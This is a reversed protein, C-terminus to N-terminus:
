SGEVGVAAEVRRLLVRGERRLTARDRQAAEGLERLNRAERCATLLSAQTQEFEAKMSVILDAKARRLREALDHHARGAHKDFEQALRATAVRRARQRMIRNPVLRGFLHGIVANPGEVYLFLYSFQERQERLASVSVHPLHVDFLGSATQVLADVREQTRTTFREVATHWGLEAKEAAEERIPEFDRRVLQEIAARIGADLHGRSLQDIRAVLDPACRQAARAAQESLFRWADSLVDDVAHDVVVVDELLHRRGEAVAETFRNIQTDLREVDLSSAAEELEFARVLEAVVRALETYAAARRAAALDEDVFRTLAAHFDDFEIPDGPLGAARAVAGSASICFPRVSSGVEAGLRQHVFTRVEELNGPSLTDARNLVVFTRARRTALVKLVDAESKSLPNDAALVVIAGDCDLLALEAEHTNAENVSSFGPTDVLVLGPVGFSTEVGVEVHDVEKVNSPNSRETVYDALDTPSIVVRNGDKFVAITQRVGIHVETSVSTLPVVGCPLVERGLLANILTSKGRKFDGLVAVHFCQAETREALRHARRELEPHDRALRGAARALVSPDDPRFLPRDVTRISDPSRATNM